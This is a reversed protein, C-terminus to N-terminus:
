VIGPCASTGIRRALNLYEIGHSTTALKSDANLVGVAAGYNVQQRGAKIGVIPGAGAAAAGAALSRARLTLMHAALRVVAQQYLSGWADSSLQEAAITLHGERTASDLDDFEPALLTLTELSTM